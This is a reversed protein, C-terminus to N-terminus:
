TLADCQSGHAIVTERLQTGALPWQGFAFLCYVGVLTPARSKLMEGKLNIAM